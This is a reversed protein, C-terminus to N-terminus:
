DGLIADKLQQLTTAARIRAGDQPRNIRIGPKLELAKTGLNIRTWQERGRAAGPPIPWNIANPPQPVVINDVDPPVSPATALDPHVGYIDGAQHDLASSTWYFVVGVLYFIALKKM